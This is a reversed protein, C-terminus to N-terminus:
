LGEKHNPNVFSPIAVPTLRAAILGNEHETYRSAKASREAASV